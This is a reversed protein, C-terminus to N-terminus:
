DGYVTYHHLYSGCMVGVYLVYYIVYSMYCKVCLMYRCSRGYLVICYVICYLLIFLVCCLVLGIGIVCIVEEIRPNYEFCQAIVVPVCLPDTHIYRINLIVVCMICMYCKCVCM